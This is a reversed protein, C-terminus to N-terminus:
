EETNATQDTQLATELKEKVTEKTPMPVPTDAKPPFQKNIFEKAGDSVKTVKGIFAGASCLLVILLTRWFGYLVLTKGLLLGLFGYFVACAATGRTTIAKFFEHVNHMM